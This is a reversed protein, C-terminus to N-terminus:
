HLITFMTVFLATKGLCDCKICCDYFVLRTTLVAGSLYSIATFHPHYQQHVVCNSFFVALIVDTNKM